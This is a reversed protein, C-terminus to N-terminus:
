HSSPNGRQISIAKPMRAMIAPIAHTCKKACFCLGNQLRVRESWGVAATGGGNESARGERPALSPLGRRPEPVATSQWASKVERFSQGEASQMTRAPRSIGKVIARFTTLHCSTRRPFEVFVLQTLRKLHGAMFILLFV